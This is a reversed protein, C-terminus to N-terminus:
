WVKRSYSTMRTVTWHPSCIKRSDERSRMKSMSKERWSALRGRLDRRDWGLSTWLSCWTKISEISNSRSPDWRTPWKTSSSSKPRRQVSTKSSSRSRTTWCLSLSRWSWFRRTKNKWAYFKRLLPRKERRNSLKTLRSRSRTSSKCKCWDKLSMTRRKLRESNTPDCIRSRRSGQRRKLWIPQWNCVQRSRM